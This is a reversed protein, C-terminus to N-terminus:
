CTLSSEGEPSPMCAAPPEPQLPSAPCSAQQTAPHSGAMAPSSPQAGSQVGHLLFAMIDANGDESLHQM